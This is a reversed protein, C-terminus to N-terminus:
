FLPHERNWFLELFSQPSTGLHRASRHAADEFMQWITPRANEIGRVGTLDGAGRWMAAQTPAVPSRGAIDPVYAGSAENAANTFAAHVPDHWLDPVPDGGKDLPIDLGLSGMARWFHKDGAHTAWNGMFNEGYPEIKPNRLPDMRGAGSELEALKREMLTPYLPRFGATFRPAEPHGTRWFQYGANRLNFEPSTNISTPKMYRMLSSFRELGLDRGLHQMASALIPEANYWDPYGAEAGADLYDLFRPNQFAQSAQQFRRQWDASSKPGPLRMPEQPVDRLLTGPAVQTLISGSEPRGYRAMESLQPAGIEPDFFRRGLILGPAQQPEAPAGTLYHERAPTMAPSGPDLLLEAVPRREGGWESQLEKRTIFRGSRTVFGDRGLRRAEAESFGAAKLADAAEGHNPGSYIENNPGRYAAAIVPDQRAANAEAQGMVYKGEANTASPSRAADILDQPVPHEGAFNHPNTIDSSHLQTYQKSLTPAQGTAGAIGRAEERTVQRGTTTQFGQSGRVTASGGNQEMLARGEPTARIAEAAAESAFDHNLGTYYRGDVGKVTPRHIREAPFASYDGLMEEPWLAAKQTAFPRQPAPIHKNPGYNFQSNQGRTETAMARRALPSYMQAHSRFANEEGIASFPVEDVGHGLIEHVARFLNNQENTMLPHSQEGTTEYVRIHKDKLDRLMAKSGGKTPPYPDEKTFEWSYGARHLADAQAQTERTFADYAARVEPNTPDSKLGEYTNAMQTAAPENVAKVRPLPEGGGILNRFRTRINGLTHPTPQGRRVFAPVDMSTNPASEPANYKQRLFTPAELNLNGVPTRPGPGPTRAGAAWDQPLIASPGVADRLAAAARGAASLPLRQIPLSKDGVGAALLGANGLMETIAQAREHPSVDPNTARFSLKGPETQEWLAGGQIARQLNYGAFATGKLLSAAYEVSGVPEGRGRARLAEHLMQDPDGWHNDVIEKRVDPNRLDEPSFSSLGKIASPIFTVVGKAVNGVGSAIGALTPHQFGFSRAIEGARNRPRFNPLIDQRIRQDATAPGVPPVFTEGQWHGGDNPGRSYQSEVSFTPHGHQKFIDPFHAGPQHDAGKVSRWYGRYDYHSDPHDVDTIGNRHAWAQFRLEDKVSLRTTERPQQPM